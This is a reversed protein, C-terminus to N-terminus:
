DRPFTTQSDWTESFVWSHTLKQNDSKDKEQFLPRPFQNKTNNYFEHLSNTMVYNTGVQLCSPHHNEEAAFTSEHDQVFKHSEGIFIFLCQKTGCLEQSSDL